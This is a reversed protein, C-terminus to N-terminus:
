EPLDVALGVQLNGENQESEVEKKPVLKEEMRMAHVKAGVVLKGLEAMKKRYQVLLKEARYKSTTEGHEFRDIMELVETMLSKIVSFPVPEAKTKPM